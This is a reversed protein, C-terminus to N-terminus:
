FLPGSRERIQDMLWDSGEKTLHHYDFQMPIGNSAFLRCRRAPCMAQYPSIYTAIPSIAARMRDDLPKVSTIQHSAMEALDDNLMSKALLTSVPEDYRPMPGFVIMGGVYPRLTEITRVLAPIDAEDWLGAIIIADLHHTPVFQEFIRRMLSTCREAGVPDLVPKCGSATAQLLNVGPWTDRIGSWLHAAHSDGVILVNKEDQRVALCAPIDFDSSSENSTIFCVGQRFPKRKAYSYYSAVSAVNSPFRDPLGNGALLVLCCAVIASAGAPLLIPSLRRARARPNRFPTEIYRWSLVSAISLIGLMIPFAYINPVDRYRVFVIIPWHWLYVSYSLRGIFAPERRGILGAVFTRHTSGVHIIAATAICPVLSLLGPLPTAASFMTVAIALAILAAGTTAEAMWRAKVAPIASEALICGIVFEFIRSPMLFFAADRSLHCIAICGGLAVAFLLCLFAVRRTEGARRLVFPLIPAILYFQAEVGLSWAHLLPKAIADHDFYGTQTLDVINPVLLVAGLAARATEDLEGPLMILTAVGLTLATAVYLGPLIRRFRRAYFGTVSLRGENLRGILDRYILYGSIVFFMDVGVFGGSFGAVGAHTLIIVAVAVARLGDIDRRYSAAHEPARRAGALTTSLPKHHM